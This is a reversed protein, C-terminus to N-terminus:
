VDYKKAYRGPTYGTARRFSHIFHSQDAYRGTQDGGLTKQLRLVKLFDHPAFGTTGKLIRQLQRVSVASVSAMETVSNIDDIRSLIRQTVTNVALINQQVLMEVLESLITQQTEFDQGILRRNYDLLPLEGTYPENVQGISIAHRGIQWVGPFLRVNVFHFDRGLNFVESCNGLMSAGTVQPDLQDFVLYSCADPLGLFSFDEPLPADTKLCLYRHVIGRLHSPPAAEIFQVVDNAKNRGHGKPSYEIM